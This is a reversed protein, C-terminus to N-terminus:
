LSCRPVFCKTLKGTERDLCNAIGCVDHSFNFDDAAILKNLDLPNGNLHCATIDMDCDMLSYARVDKKGSKPNSVIGLEKARKAIKLILEAEFKSTDFRIM